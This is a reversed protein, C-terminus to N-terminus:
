FTVMVYTSISHSPDYSVDLIYGWCAGSIHSGTVDSINRTYKRLIIGVYAWPHSKFINLMNNLWGQHAKSTTWFSGMYEGNVWQAHTLIMRLFYVLFMEFIVPLWMEPCTSTVNWIHALHEWYDWILYINHDCKLHLQVADLPFIWLLTIWQRWHRWSVEVPKWPDEGRTNLPWPTSPLLLSECSNSQLRFEAWGVLRCPLLPSFTKQPILALSDLSYRSSSYIISPKPYTSCM